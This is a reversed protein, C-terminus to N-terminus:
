DSVLCSHIILGLFINLTLKYYNTELLFNLFENQKNGEEKHKRMIRVNSASVPVAFPESFINIEFTFYSHISKQYLLLSQRFGFCNKLMDYARLKLKNLNYIICFEIFNGVIKLNIKFEFRLM